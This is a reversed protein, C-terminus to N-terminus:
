LVTGNRSPAIEGRHRMKQQHHCVNPVDTMLPMRVQWVTLLQKMFTMLDNFTKEGVDMSLLLWIRWPSRTKHQHYAEWACNVAEGTKEDWLWEIVFNIWYKLPSLLIQNVLLTYQHWVKPKTPFHDPLSRKLIVVICPLVFSLSSSDFLIVLNISPSTECACIKNLAKWAPSLCKSKVLSIESRVSAVRSAFPFINVPRNRQLWPLQSSDEHM